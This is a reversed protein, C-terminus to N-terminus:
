ISYYHDFDRLVSDPSAPINPRCMKHEKQLITFSFYHRASGRWCVYSGKSKGSLM